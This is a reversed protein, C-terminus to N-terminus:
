RENPAIDRYGGQPNAAVDYPTEGDGYNDEGYLAGGGGQAGGMDYPTEGTGGYADGGYAGGAGATDYTDDGYVGLDGGGGGSPDGYNTDASPDGYADGSPDGYNDQQQQQPFSPNGEKALFRKYRIEFAQGMSAIINKADPGADLVHCGRVNMDDKAVYAIVDYTSDEGGTAFSISPMIHTALVRGQLTKIALGQMSIWLKCPTKVPVPDSQICQRVIPAVNRRVPERIGAAECCLTIAERTVTTREEFTLGSMSKVMAVHGVYKVPYAFGDGNTLEEDRHLWGTAPKETFSGSRAWSKGSAM